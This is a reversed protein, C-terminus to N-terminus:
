AGPDIREAITYSIEVHHCLKGGFIRHDPKALNCPLRYFGLGILTSDRDLAECVDEALAYFTKSTAASDDLTLWGDITYAYERTIGRGDRRMPTQIQTFGPDSICWARIQDTSSITNVFLSNFDEQRVAWRLYDYVDGMNSIAEMVTKIRARITAEAM